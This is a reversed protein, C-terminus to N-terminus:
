QPRRACVVTDGCPGSRLMPEQDPACAPDCGKPRSTIQVAARGFATRAHSMYSIYAFGFGFRGSADTLARLEHSEVSSSGFLEDFALVTGPCLRCRGALAHLM